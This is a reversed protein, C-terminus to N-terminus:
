HRSNQINRQPSLEFCRDSLEQSERDHTVMAIARGQRAENRLVEHIIERSPADVAALPEDLLLIEANQALGQAILVRQRQGGSLTSFDQKELGALNVLELTTSIDARRQKRTSRRRWTGITVVDSVTQPLDAPTKPNQVVLAVPSTREVWGHHPTKSGALIELLTSKGVGNEGTISLIEGARLAFTVDRLIERQGYAFYASHIRLLTKTSTM